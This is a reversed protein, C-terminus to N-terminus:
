EPRAARVRAKLTEFFAANAAPGRPSRSGEDILARFSTPTARADRAPVTQGAEIDERVAELVRLRRAIEQFSAADPLANIAALAAQKPTRTPKNM